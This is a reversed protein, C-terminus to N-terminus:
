YDIEIETEKESKKNEAEELTLFLNQSSVDNNHFINDHDTFLEITVFDGNKSAYKFYHINTTDADVPIEGYVNVLIIGSYVLENISYELRPQSYRYWTNGSNDVFTQKQRSFSMYKRELLYLTDGIKLKNFDIM